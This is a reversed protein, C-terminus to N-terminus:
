WGHWWGRIQDPTQNENRMWTETIQDFTVHPDKLLEGFAHAM